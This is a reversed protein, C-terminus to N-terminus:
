FPVRTDCLNCIHEGNSGHPTWKHECKEQEATVNNALPLSKKQNSVWLYAIFIANSFALLICIVKLMDNNDKLINITEQM